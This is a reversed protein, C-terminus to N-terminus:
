RAAKDMESWPEETERRVAPCQPNNTEIWDPSRGSEYHSGQRKSVIGELGMECAYHFVVEGSGYFHENFRIGPGCNRLLRLLRQKRNEIPLVRLDWGDVEIVDFAYLFVELDHKHQRLRSFVAIGNEDCAVAEGDILCSRLKLRRAAEVILPYRDTWDYGKRTLLRVGAADRRVRMRYGDHKIEHLWDGNAPAQRAPSPLCPEIVRTLTPSTSPRWLM